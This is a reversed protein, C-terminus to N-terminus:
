VDVTLDPLMQVLMPPHAADTECWSRHTSMPVAHYWPSSSVVDVVVDVHSPVVAVVVDVHALMSHAISVSAPHPLSAVHARSAHADHAHVTPTPHSHSHCRHSHSHHHAVPHISAFVHAPHMVSPQSVFCAHHCWYMLPTMDCDHMMVVAAWAAAQVAVLVHVHAVTVVDVALVRELLHLVDMTWVLVVGHWAAHQAFCDEGMREHTDAVCVVGERAQIGLM